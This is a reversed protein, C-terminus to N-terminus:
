VLLANQCNTLLNPEERRFDLTEQRQKIELLYNLYQRREQLLNKKKEALAKKNRDM